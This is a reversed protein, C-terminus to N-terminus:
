VLFKGKNEFFNGNLYSLRGRLFVAKTKGYLKFGEFVSYDSKHFLEKARVMFSENPDFVFIDAYYGKKIEGKKSISFIKAPNFATLEMLRFLSLNGKKVGFTYLFPFMIQSSAIGMPIKTIDNKNIIKDSINFACSDTAFVDFQSIESLLKKQNEKSRVPPTFTYLFNNKRKYIEENFGLYQPCTEAYVDFGKTKYETIMDLSKASSIHVFYIKANFKENLKLIKLVAYNESFEDRIINHFEIKKYNKKNKTTNYSIFSDDEAHVCVVIDNKAAIDLIHAMNEECSMLGRNKYTTFIKISNIGKEKIKLLRAKLDAFNELGKIVAHFSYDCLSNEAEKIRSNIDKIPNKEDGETFDIFTTIGGAICAKSGSFFDDSNYKGNGLNLKFHTHSDILGPFATLGNFDMTQAEIKPEKGSYFIEEIIEDKILISSKVTKQLKLDLIKLNKLLIKKV